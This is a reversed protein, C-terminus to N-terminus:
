TEKWVTVRNRGTEKSTYLAQDARSLLARIELTGEGNWIVIGASITISLETNEHRTLSTNEITTRLREMTQYASETNTDPMLIVFEEGGFRAFIDMSRLNTLCLKALNTLIKDGVLHGYTDNVNKFRDVDFLVIALPSKTRKAREWEKVAIEDFVRRNYINTLPDTIALQEYVTARIRASEAERRASIDQVTGQLEIAKGHEDKRTTLTVLGHIISSNKRRLELEYDKVIAEGRLTSEIKEKDQQHVVLDSLKMQRLENQAYGLIDESAPNADMIKEDLSAIFIMEKSEEFISRYKSESTRLSTNAEELEGSLVEVRNFSRSLRSSLLVAQVLIFGLFTVDSSVPISIINQLYLTELVVGTFGILSAIAIYVAGDRKRVLIRGLFYVFYVLEILLIIQYITTTYSLTLTSVSFMFLSFAVALAVVLRLAWRHIDEPYLSQLFIGYISTSFYFTLYELHLAFEWSMGPFLFIFLKQHLLGTRILNFFCWIGFFLPSKSTPRFFFILLHYLGMVLYIGMIFTDQAWDNRQLEHIQSSTGLLIENRFGAKRHQWNSIQMVLETTDGNSQFFVVQPKSQPIMEQQSTGVKGNQAVLKGDVWLNYATGEGEIFMGYTRTQDPLHVILRYTAYGEPPLLQENFEYSTWNDPVLVFSPNTATQFHGPFILEQWYFEWEGTIMLRGSKSFDWGELDLRGGIAKPTETAPNTPSCSALCLCIVLLWVGKLSKAM